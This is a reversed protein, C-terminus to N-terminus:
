RTKQDLSQNGFWRGRPGLGRARGDSSCGPAIMQWKVPGLMRSFGWPSRGWGVGRGGGSCALLKRAKRSLFRPFPNVARPFCPIIHSIFKSVPPIWSPNKSSISARMGFPLHAGAKRGAGRAIHVDAIQARREIGPQDGAAVVAREDERMSSM